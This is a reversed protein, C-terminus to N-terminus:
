DVVKRVSLSFWDKEQEHLMKYKGRPLVITKHEEHSIQGDNILEFYYNGNTDKKIILDNKNNVEILHKHGTTEGEAAVFSGNHKLIEGSTEKVFHFALDGHRYIKM